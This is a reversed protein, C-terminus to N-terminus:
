RTGDKFIKSPILRYNYANFGELKGAEINRVIRKSVTVRRNGERVKYREGIKQLWVEENIEEDQILQKYLRRGDEEDFIYEEINELTLTNKVHALRPNELYLDIKDLPVDTIASFMRKNPFVLNTSM